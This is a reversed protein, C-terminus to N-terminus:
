KQLRLIVEDIFLKPDFRELNEIKDGVYLGVLDTVFVVRRKSTDMKRWKKFSKEKLPSWVIVAGEDHALDVFADGPKPTRDLLTLLKYKALYDARPQIGKLKELEKNSLQSLAESAALWRPAVKQIYLSLSEDFNVFKDSVDYWTKQVQKLTKPFIPFYLKRRKAALLAEELPREQKM